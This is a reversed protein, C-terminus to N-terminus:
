RPAGQGASECGTVRWVTAGPWQQAVTLGPQGALTGALKGREVAGEYVYTIGAEALLACRESASPAPSFFRDTAALKRAQDSTELTHGWYVRVPAYAPIANGMAPAALVVNGENGNRGLWQLAALDDNPLYFPTRLTLAGLLSLGVLWLTGLGLVAVSALRLWGWARPGLRQAWWWLGAAALLSLPVHAGESLRRQFQFPAYLMVPLAIAWALLLLAGDRTLGAGEPDRWARALGLLALPAILGYGALVHLPSPSPTLNQAIWGATAVNTQLQLWYLAATGGVALPILALPPKCWGAPMGRRLLFLGTWLVGVFGMLIVFFPQLVVALAALLAAVVMRRWPFSPASRLVLLAVGYLAAMALAFHGNAFLTHFTNSEPVTADIGIVGFGSTLWSLSGGIATFAFATRRVTVQPSLTVIFLYGALLLVAGGAIRFLHFAVLNGVGTVAGLKALLVYQPFLLAPPHPESTYPLHLLWAGRAAEGMKSLYSFVDFPTTLVWTFTYGPPTLAWAIPYPLSALALVVVTWIAAWRLEGPHLSPM